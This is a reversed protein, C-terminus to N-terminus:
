SLFQQDAYHCGLVKVSPTLLRYALGISTAPKRSDEVAEESDDIEEDEDGNQKNESDTLLPQALGNELQGIDVRQGAALVSM